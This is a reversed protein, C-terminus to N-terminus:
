STVSVENNINDVMSSLSQGLAQYAVILAIAIAFVIFAYEVMTQANSAKHHWKFLRRFTRLLFDMM